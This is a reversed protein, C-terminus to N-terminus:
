KKLYMYYGDVIADLRYNARIYDAIISKEHYSFVFVIVLRVHNDKLEQVIHKQDSLYLAPSSMYDFRTVNQRDSLFYVLPAYYNLFIYDGRKTHSDIYMVLDNTTIATTKTIFIHMYPKADYYTQNTLPTEWKYYGNFVATYFGLITM